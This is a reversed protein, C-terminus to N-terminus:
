RSCDFSFSSYSISLMKIHLPFYGIITCPFKCKKSYHALFLPNSNVHTFVSSMANLIVSRTSCCIQM